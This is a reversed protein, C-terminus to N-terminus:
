KRRRTKCKKCKKNKRRGATKGWRSKAEEYDKGGPSGLLEGMVIQKNLRDQPTTVPVKTINYALIPFFSAKVGDLKIKMHLGPGGRDETGLYVGEYTYNGVLRQGPKPTLRYRVNKELTKPDLTM